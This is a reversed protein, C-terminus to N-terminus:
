RAHDDRDLVTAITDAVRNAAFSSAASTLRAGHSRGLVFGLGIAVTVAALPYSLVKDEWELEEPMVQDLLRETWTRGRAHDEM